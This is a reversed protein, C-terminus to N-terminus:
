VVTGFCTSIVMSSQLKLWNWRFTKLVHVLLPNKKASMKPWPLKRVGQWLLIFGHKLFSPDIWVNGGQHYSFIADSVGCRWAEKLSAPVPFRPANSPSSQEGAWWFLSLVLSFPAYIADCAQLTALTAPEALLAAIDFDKWSIVAIHCWYHSGWCLLGWQVEHWWNQTALFFAAWWCVGSFTRICFDAGRRRRM